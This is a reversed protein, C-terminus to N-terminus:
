QYVNSCKEVSFLDFMFIGVDMDGDCESANQVDLVEQICENAEDEFFDKLGSEYDKFAQRNKYEGEIENICDEISEYELFDKLQDEDTCEYGTRCTAEAYKRPFNSGTVCSFLFFFM